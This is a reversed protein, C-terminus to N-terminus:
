LKTEGDILRRKKLDILLSFRALFDVGLIAQEINAIIFVCRYIYTEHRPQNYNIKKCYIRAFLNVAFLKLDM